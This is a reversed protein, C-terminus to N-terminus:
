FVLVFVASSAPNASVEYDASGGGATGMSKIKSYCSNMFGRPELKTNVKCTEEKLEFKGSGAGKVKVDTLTAEVTMENKVIITCEENAASFTCGNAETGGGGGRRAVLGLLKADRLGRGSTTSVAMSGAIEGSEEGKQSCKEKSLKDYTALILLEGGINKNELGLSETGTFKCTDEVSVGVVKCKVKLGPKGSSGEESLAASLKKETEFAEIKWPLNVAEAEVTKAECLKIARCSLVKVKEVEIFAGEGEVYCEVESEGVTTKKDRLILSGKSRVTNEEAAAQWTWSGSSSATSCQDTTYKTGEKSANETGCEEWASAQATGASVMSVAFVALLCLGVRKLCKMDCQNGLWM